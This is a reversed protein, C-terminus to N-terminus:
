VEEQHLDSRSLGSCRPFWESQELLLPCWFSVALTCRLLFFLTSDRSDISPVDESRLATRASYRVAFSEADEHCGLPLTLATDDLLLSLPLYKNQTMTVSLLPALHLSLTCPLRGDNQYVTFALQFRRARRRHVVECSNPLLARGSPPHRQKTRRSRRLSM